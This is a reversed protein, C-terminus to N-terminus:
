LSTFFLFDLLIFFINVKNNSLDKTLSKENYEREETKLRTLNAPADAVILFWFGTVILSLIASIYFAWPWNITEVIFGSLPWTIVTGFTGGM